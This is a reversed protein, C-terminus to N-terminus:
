CYPLVSELRWAPFETFEILIYTHSSYSLLFLERQSDQTFVAVVDSSPNATITAVSLPLSWHVVLDFLLICLCVYLVVDISSVSLFVHQM